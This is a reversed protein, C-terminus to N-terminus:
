IEIRLLQKEDAVGLQPAVIGVLLEAVLLGQEGCSNWIGKANLTREGVKRDKCAREATGAARAEIGIVFTM